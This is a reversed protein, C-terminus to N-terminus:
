GIKLVPLNAQVASLWFRELGFELEWRFRFRRTLIHCHSRPPFSRSDGVIVRDVLIRRTCGWHYRSNLRFYNLPYCPCFFVEQELLHVTRGHKLPVQPRTCNESVCQLHFHSLQTLLYKDVAWYWGGSNKWALSRLQCRQHQLHSSITLNQFKDARLEMLALWKLHCSLLSKAHHGQYFLRGCCCSLRQIM